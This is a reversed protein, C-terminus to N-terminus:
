KSERWDGVLSIIEKKQLKRYNAPMDEPRVVTRLFPTMDVRKTRVYEVVRQREEVGRDAPTLIVVGEGDFFSFPNISV